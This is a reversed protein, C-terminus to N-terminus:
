GTRPSAPSSGPAPNRGTRSGAARARGQLEDQIAELVIAIVPLRVGRLWQRVRQDVEGLTAVRGEDEAM